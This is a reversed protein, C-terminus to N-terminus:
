SRTLDRLKKTPHLFKHCFSATALFHLDAEVEKRPISASLLASNPHNNIEGDSKGANENELDVRRPITATRAKSAQVVMTMTTPDM